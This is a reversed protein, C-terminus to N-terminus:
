RSRAPSRAPARPASGGCCCGASSAPSPSGRWLGPLFSLWTTPFFLASSLNAAFPLGGGSLPTWLPLEGERVSRAAFLLWPYFVMATDAVAPNKAVYDPPRVEAFPVSGPDSYLPDLSVPALDGPLGRGLFALALVALLTAAVATEIARTGSL